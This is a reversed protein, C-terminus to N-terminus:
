RCEFGTHGKGEDDHDICMPPPFVAWCRDRVGLGVYGASIDTAMPRLLM